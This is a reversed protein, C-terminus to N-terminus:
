RYIASIELSSGNTLKITSNLIRIRGYDLIKTDYNIYKSFTYLHLVYELQGKKYEYVNEM